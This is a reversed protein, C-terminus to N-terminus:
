SPPSNSANPRAAPSCRVEIADAAGVGTVRAEFGVPISMNELSGDSTVERETHAVQVGNVYLSVYDTENSGTVNNEISGSFWVLYDGAGPTLTMGAVAVDTASTTTTDTTASAQLPASGTEPGDDNRWRYHLEELDPDPEATFTPTAVIAGASAVATAPVTVTITEDAGINYSAFAPLTITVVTDSTRVVDNFTLGDRVVADWGFTEGLDSDIGAILDTTITNDDGVTPDWTDNTLTIVLTEGGAVIESEAASPVVSGSLAATPGALYNVDLIPRDAPTGNERTAFETIYKTGQNEVSDMARWGENSMGDVWAQVDAGVDWTM